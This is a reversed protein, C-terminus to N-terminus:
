NFNLISMIVVEWDALAGPKFYGLSVYKDGYHIEISSFEKDSMRFNSINELVWDRSEIWDPFTLDLVRWLHHQNESFPIIQFNISLKDSSDGIIHIQGSTDSKLKPVGVIYNTGEPNKGRTFEYSYIKSLEDIIDKSPIKYSVGEAFVEPRTFDRGEVELETTYFVINNGHNKNIVYPGELNTGSEGIRKRVSTPQMSAEASSIEVTYLGANMKGDPNNEDTLWKSEIKGNQVIVKEQINYNDSYKLWQASIVLEMNDPLNTSGLVRFSQKDNQEVTVDLVVDIPKNSVINVCGINGILIMTIILLLKIGEGKKM